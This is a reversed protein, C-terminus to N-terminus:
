LPSTLFMIFESESSGSGSFSLSVHQLDHPLSYKKRSPQTGDFYQSGHAWCFTSLSSFSNSCHDAMICLRIPFQIPALVPLLGKHFVWRRFDVSGDRDIGFPPTACPHVIIYEHNHSAFFTPFLSFIRTRGSSCLPKVRFSDAHM